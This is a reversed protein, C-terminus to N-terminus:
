CMQIGQFSCFLFWVGLLMIAASVAFLFVFMIEGLPTQLYEPEDYCFRKLYRSEKELKKLQCIRNSSRSVYKRLTFTLILGFVGGTCLLLFKQLSNLTNEKSFVFQLIISVVVLVASPIAWGLSRHHRLDESLQRYAELREDKEDFASM